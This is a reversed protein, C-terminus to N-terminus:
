ATNYQIGRVPKLYPYLEIKLDLNSTIIYCTFGQLPIFFFSSMTRLNKVQRVPSFYDIVPSFFHILDYYHARAPNVHVSARSRCMLHKFYGM